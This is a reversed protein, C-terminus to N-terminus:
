RNEKLSKLAGNYTLFTHPHIVEKKEMLFSITQFAKMFIGFHLNKLTKQIWDSLETQRQCYDSGLFDAAYLIQDLLSPNPNGLTHNQIASAIEKDYLGYNKEIFLPASYAHLAQFPIGDTNLGYSSFLEHHIDAKKQKTIDHFLGALFAKKPEPYSYQIALDEAYMAVRQIHEWRTETVHKPVEEQFFTIWEVWSKQDQRNM